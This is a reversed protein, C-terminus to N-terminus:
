KKIRAKAGKLADELEKIKSDYRSNVNIGKIEETLSLCRKELDSEKEFDDKNLKPLIIDTINKLSNQMNGEDASFLFGKAAIEYDRLAPVYKEKVLNQSGQLHHTRAEINSKMKTIEKILNNETVVIKNELILKEEAFRAMIEEILKTKAEGIEAKIQESLLKHNSAIKKNQYRTLVIPFIIGLLTVLVAVFTFVNNYLSNINSIIMTIANANMIETAVVQSAAAVSM